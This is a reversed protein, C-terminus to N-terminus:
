LLLVNKKKQKYLSSYNKKKKRITILIKVNNKILIICCISLYRVDFKCLVYNNKKLSKKVLSFSQILYEGKKKWLIFYTYSIKILDISFM